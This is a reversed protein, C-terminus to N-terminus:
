SLKAILLKNKEFLFDQQLHDSRHTFVLQVVCYLEILKELHHALLLPIVDVHLSKHLSKLPNQYNLCSLKERERSHKVLILITKKACIFKPLDHLLSHRLLIQVCHDLFCIRVIITEDIALTTKKVTDWTWYVKFNIESNQEMRHASTVLLPLFFFLLSLALLIFSSLSLFSELLLSETFVRLLPYDVKYILKTSNKTIFIM